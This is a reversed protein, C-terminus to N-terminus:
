ERRYYMPPCGATRALRLAPACGGASLPGQPAALLHPVPTPFRPLALGQLREAVQMRAGAHLPQLPCRLARWHQERCWSPCGTTPPTNRGAPPALSHQLSTGLPPPPELLVSKLTPTTTAGVNPPHTYTASGRPLEWQRCPAPPRAPGHTTRPSRPSRPALLGRSAEHPSLSCRPPVRPVTVLM